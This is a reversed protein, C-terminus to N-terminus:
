EGQKKVWVTAYSFPGRLVKNTLSCFMIDEANSFNLADLRLWAPTSPLRSTSISLQGEVTTPSELSGCTYM